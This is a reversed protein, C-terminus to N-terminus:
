GRLQRTFMGAPQEILRFLEAVDPFLLTRQSKMQAVWGRYQPLEALTRIYGDDLPDSETRVQRMSEGIILRIMDIGIRLVARRRDARVRSTLGALGLNARAVSIAIFIERMLTFLHPIFQPYRPHARARFLWQRLMSVGRHNLQYVVARGISHPSLPNGNVPDHWGIVLPDVTPDGSFHSALVWDGRAIAVYWPPWRSHIVLPMASRISAANIRPKGNKGSMWKTLSYRHPNHRRIIEHYFRGGPDQVAGIMRISVDFRMVYLMQATRADIWPAVKGRTARGGDAEPPIPTFAAPLTMEHNYRKEVWISTLRADAAIAPFIRIRSALPVPAYPSVEVALFDDFAAPPLLHLIQAALEWKQGDIALKLYSRGWHDYGGANIIRKGVFFRFCRPCGDWIVEDVASQFRPGMGRPPVIGLGVNTSYASVDTYDRFHDPVYEDIARTRKAATWAAQMQAMGTPGITGPSMLSVLGHWAAHTGEEIADDLLRDCFPISLILASLATQGSM